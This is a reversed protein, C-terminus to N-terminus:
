ELGKPAMPFLQEFAIVLMSDSPVLFCPMMLKEGGAWLRQNTTNNYIERHFINCKAWKGSGMMKDRRRLVRQNKQQRTCYCRSDIIFYTRHSLIVM